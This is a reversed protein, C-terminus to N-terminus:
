AASDEAYGMGQFSRVAIWLHYVVEDIRPDDLAQKEVHPGRHDAPLELVHPRAGAADFDAVGCPPLYGMLRSPVRCAKLGGLPAPVEHM